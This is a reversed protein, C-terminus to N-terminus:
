VPVGDLFERDIISTQIDSFLVGFFGRLIDALVPEKEKVFDFDEENCIISVNCHEPLDVRFSSIFYFDFCVRLRKVQGREDKFSLLMDAVRKQESIPRNFVVKSRLIKHTNSVLLDLEKLLVAEFSGEKYQGHEVEAKEPAVLHEEFGKKVLRKFAGFQSMLIFIISSSFVFAKSVSMTFFSGSLSKSILICSLILVAVISLAYLLLFILTKM